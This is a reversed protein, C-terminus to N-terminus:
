WYSWDRRALVWAALALNTTAHALVSLWLKGRQRYLLAYALGAAFGALWQTHALAFVASSAILATWSADRPFAALFDRRDIWRMLFSRWFLEEMLPVVLVAGLCRIAILDWRLSGDAGLPLFSAASQGFRTWAPLPAVWFAFVALGLAVSALLEGPSSPVARLEDYRRWFLALLAGAGGAQLLYLWRQDWAGSWDAHEQAAGRLALLLIFVAFPLARLLVPRRAPHNKLIPCATSATVATDNGPL